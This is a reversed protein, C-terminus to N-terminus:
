NGGDRTLFALALYGATALGFVTWFVWPQSAALTTGLVALVVVHVGWDPGLGALFGSHLWPRLAEIQVM